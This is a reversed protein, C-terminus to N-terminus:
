QGIFIANYQHNIEKIPDFEVQHSSCVLNSRGIEKTLDQILYLSVIFDSASATQSTCETAVHHDNCM